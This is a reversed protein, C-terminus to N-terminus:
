FYTERTQFHFTPHEMQLSQVMIGEIKMGVRGQVDKSDLKLGLTARWNTTFITDCFPVCRCLTTDIRRYM